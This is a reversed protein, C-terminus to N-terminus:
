FIGRSPSPWYDLFQDLATMAAALSVIIPLKVELFLFKRADIIKPRMEATKVERSEDRMAGKIKEAKRAKRKLDRWTAFYEKRAPDSNLYDIRVDVCFRIFYYVLIGMLLCWVSLMSGRAATFDFGFPKFQEIKIGPVWALVLMVSGVAMVNRGFKQTRDKIVQAPMADNSQLWRALTM